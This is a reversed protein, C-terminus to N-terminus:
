SRLASQLETKAVAIEQDSKAPDAGNEIWSAKSALAAKLKDLASSVPRLRETDGSSNTVIEEAQAILQRLEDDSEASATETSPAPETREGSNESAAQAGDSPQTYITQHLSTALSDIAATLAAGPASSAFSGGNLDIGRWMEGRSGGGGSAGVGEANVVSVAASDVSIIEAYVRAKLNSQNDTTLALLGGRVVFQVANQRGISVAQEVSLAADSSLSKPM